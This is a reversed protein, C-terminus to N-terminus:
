GTFLRAFNCSIQAEASSKWTVANPYLRRAIIVMVTTVLALVGFDLALGFSSTGGSLMLARLGDVEYTLAKEALVSPQEGQKDPSVATQEQSRNWNIVPLTFLSM